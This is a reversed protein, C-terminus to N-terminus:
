FAGLFQANPGVQKKLTKLGNKVSTQFAAGLDSISAKSQSSISIDSLSQSDSM